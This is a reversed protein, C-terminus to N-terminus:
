SDCCDPKIGPPFLPAFVSLLLLTWELLLPEVESCPSLYQERLVGDVETAPESTPCSGQFGRSASGLISLYRRDLHEIRRSFVSFGIESGGGKSGVVRREDVYSVCIQKLFM